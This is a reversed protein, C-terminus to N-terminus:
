KARASLPIAACRAKQEDPSLENWEIIAFLTVAEMQSKWQRGYATRIISEAITWYRDNLKIGCSMAAVSTRISGTAATEVDFASAKPVFGTISLTALFLIAYRNM